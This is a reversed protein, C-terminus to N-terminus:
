IQKLFEGPVAFLFHLNAVALVPAEFFSKDLLAVEFVSQGPAIEPANM